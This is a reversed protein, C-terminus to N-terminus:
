VIITMWIHINPSCCKTSQSIQSLYVIYGFIYLHIYMFVHFSESGFGVFHLEISKVNTYDGFIELKSLSSYVSSIHSNSFCKGELTVPSNYFDITICQVRVTQFLYDVLLCGTCTFHLSICLETNVTTISAAVTTALM